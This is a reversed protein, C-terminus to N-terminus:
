RRYRYRRFNFYLHLVGRDFVCKYGRKHSYEWEKKVIKFAIDEYPPGGIFRIICYDPSSPDPELVYRPTKTPEILDPYFINFKYGQVIKPPPNEKDYHTQNYKNWEYGTKVRNFYRPKRPRYKDHWWYPTDPVLVESSFVEENDAMKQSAEHQYMQEASLMFRNMGAARLTAGADEVPVLLEEKQAKEEREKQELVLKRQAVLEQMDQIPDVADMEDQEQLLEPSLSGDDEEEKKKRKESKEKEEKKDEKKDDKKYKEDERYPELPPEFDEEEKQQQQQQAQQALVLQEKNHQDKLQKLRKKLLDAHFERLLAKAKFIALQKLLSEWYEVDVAAGDVEGKEIRKKVDIELSALEVTSKGSFLTLVDREVAPSALFQRKTKQKQKMVEDDCITYLANWYELNAGLDVHIQIDRKLEELDIVGLGDFIKYPETLEVDLDVPINADPASQTHFLHLNKALIDIAKERGERIRIESRLKAQARHFQEEKEEWGEIMEMDMDRQLQARMEEMQAKEAEREERRKKVKEIEKQFDQRQKRQYDKTLKRPDVGRALDQEYKKRWVFMTTLNADGFPNSDNTYGFLKEEQAEKSQKALKKAIRRSKRQEPTELDKL